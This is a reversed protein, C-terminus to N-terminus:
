ELGAVMQLEGAADHCFRAFSEPTPLLPRNFTTYLSGDDRRRVNICRGEYIKPSRKRATTVRETSDEIFLYHDDGDRTLMGSKPQGVPMRGPQETLLKLDVCLETNPYTKAMRRRNAVALPSDSQLINDIIEGITKTRKMKIKINKFNAEKTRAANSSADRGGQQLVTM